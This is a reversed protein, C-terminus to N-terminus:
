IFISVKRRKANQAPSTVEMEDENNIQPNERKVRQSRKASPPMIGTYDPEHDVAVSSSLM